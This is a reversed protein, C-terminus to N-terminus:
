TLVLVARGASAGEIGCFPEAVLAATIAAQGNLTSVAGGSARDM